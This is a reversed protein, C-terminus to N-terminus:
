IIQIEFIYQLQQTKGLNENFSTYHVQDSTIIKRKM